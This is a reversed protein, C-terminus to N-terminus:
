EVRALLTEGADNDYCRQFAVSAIARLGVGFRWTVLQGSRENPYDRREAHARAFLSVWNLTPDRFCFLGRQLTPKRMIM